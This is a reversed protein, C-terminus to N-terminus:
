RKSHPTGNLLVALPKVCSFLYTIGYSFVIVMILSILADAVISGTSNWHKRVVDLVIMHVFYSGFSLKSLLKLFNTQYCSLNFTVKKVLLFLSTAVLLVNPMIYEYLRMDVANQKLSYYGTGIATSMWSVILLLAIFIISKMGQTQNLYYGLIFYFLYWVFGVSIEPIFAPINTVGLVRLGYVLSTSLMLVVLLYRFQSQSAQKVFVRLTPAVIYLGIIVYMFWLHPATSQSPIKWLATGLPRNLTGCSNAYIAYIASWCVFPVFLRMTIKLYHSKLNLIRDTSLLLAGSIMFLIPVSCRAFSNM